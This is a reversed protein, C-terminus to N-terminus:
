TVSDIDAAVTQALATLRRRFRDVPPRDFRMGQPSWRLLDLWGARRETRDDGAGPHQEALWEGVAAWFRDLVAHIATAVTPSKAAVIEDYHPSSAVMEWMDGDYRQLMGDLSAGLTPGDTLADLAAEVHREFVLTFASAFVDDKDSFYQYVAPRSVGAAEAINAMSTASYGRALFQEIAAARIAARRADGRKTSAETEVVDTVRSRQCM